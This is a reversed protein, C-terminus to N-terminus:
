FKPVAILDVKLVLQMSNCNLEPAATLPPNIKKSREDSQNNNLNRSSGALQSIICHKSLEPFEYSLGPSNMKASETRTKLDTPVAKM